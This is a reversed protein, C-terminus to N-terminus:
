KTEAGAEAVASPGASHRFRQELTVVKHAVYQWYQESVPQRVEPFLATFYHL